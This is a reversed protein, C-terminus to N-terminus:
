DTLVLRYVKRGNPGVVALFYLGPPFTNKIECRDNEAVRAGSASYLIVKAGVPCNKVRVTQGRRAPNPYVLSAREWGSVVDPSTLISIGGVTAIYLRNKDPNALLTYRLPFYPSNSVPLDALPSNSPTFTRVVNMSSDLVEIGRDDAVWVSGDLGKWLGTINRGALYPGSYTLTSVSVVYLGSSTGLLLSDGSGYAVNAGIGVSGYVQLNSDYFRCESESCAVLYDGTSHLLYQSSGSIGTSVVTTDEVRFLRASGSSNWALVYVDGQFGAFDFVFRFDGFESASITITDSFDPKYAKVGTGHYGIWLYGNIYKMSNVLFFSFTKRTPWVACSYEIGKGCVILSDGLEVMGTISTFGLGGTEIRYLDPLRYIGLGHMYSPDSYYGFGVFGEGLFRIDGRRIRVTDAGVSDLVFLARLASIWLTDNRSYLFSVPTSSLSVRGFTDVVGTDTAFVWDGRFTDVDYVERGTVLTDWASFVFFSDVHSTLAGYPGGVVVRDGFVKLVNTRGIEPPFTIEVTDAVRLATPRTKGLIFLFNGGRDIRRAELVEEPDGFIILPIDRFQEGDRYQIGNRTLIWIEGGECAVSLVQTSKIGDLKTYSRLISTGDSLLLGGATAMYVTDGQRCVDLLLETNTWIDWTQALLFLM